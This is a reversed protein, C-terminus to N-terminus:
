TWQSGFRDKNAAPVKSEPFQRARVMAIQALQLRFDVLKRQGWEHVADGAQRDVSIQESLDLARTTAAFGAAGHALTSIDDDPVTTSAASDLDDILQLATYFVRMVDEDVPSYPGTVYILSADAFFRFARVNPPYEPAAATYPVWIELVNLLTTLTSTSIERSDAAFTLTGITDQPRAQSYEHLAQRIAEEINTTSWIANSSDALIEEVRDTLSALTTAM